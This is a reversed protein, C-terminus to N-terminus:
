AALKRTPAPGPAARPQTHDPGTGDESSQGREISRDPGHSTSRALPSSRRAGHVLARIAALGATGLSVVALPLLTMGSALALMDHSGALSWNWLLYDGATLPLLWVLARPRV